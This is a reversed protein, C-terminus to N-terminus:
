SLGVFLWALGVNVAIVGVAVATGVAPRRQILQWQMRGIQVLGGPRFRLLVILLLAAYIGVFAFFFEAGGFIQQQVVVVLAGFFAGLARDIGGIAVLTVFLISTAQVVPSWFPSPASTVLLAALFAGGLGALMGGIVLAVLKTKFVNIGLAQAEIENDRVAYMARGLRSTRLGEVMWVLLGAAVLTLLYFAPDGSLDIPGLAPRTVTWGTEGGTAADWRFFTEGLFDAATLTAIALYLGRLRVSAAGVIVSVPVTAVAALPAALWFPWGWSAMAAGTVMAGVGAFSYPMLSILGAYGTVVVVSLGVMAYVMVYQGVFFGFDGFAAPLAALALLGLLAVVHGPTLRRLARPRAPLPEAAPRRVAVDASM